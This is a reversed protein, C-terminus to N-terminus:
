PGESQRYKENDSPDDDPRNETVGFRPLQDDVRTRRDDRKQHDKQNLSALVLIGLRNM